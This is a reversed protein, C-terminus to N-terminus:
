RGKHDFMYFLNLQAVNNRISNIGPTNNIDSLGYNLRAEIGFKSHTLLGIGLSLSVDTSKFNDKISKSDGNVASKAQTLFGVQPGAQIRYGPGFMYQFLLPIQVYRLHTFSNSSGPVKGGQDSYGIEPQFAIKKSAHLHGVLGVNFGLKYNSNDGDKVLINSSNLGARIGLHLKQANSVTLLMLCFAVTTIKKM